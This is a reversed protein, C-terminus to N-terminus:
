LQPILTTLVRWFTDVSDLELAENPSHIDHMTPGISIIDMPIHSYIVGCELGAHIVNVTANEGTVERYVRCYADRLPSIPAYSWGPYRSHHRTTCGTLKALLDLERISADLNSEHESRSSFVFTLKGDEYRVVGLNRSYCVLGEVERSMELVGNAACALVGIARITDEQKM